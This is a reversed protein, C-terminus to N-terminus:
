LRCLCRVSLDGDNCVHVVQRVEPFPIATFDEVGYKVNYYTKTFEDCNLLVVPRGFANIAAGIQLENEFYFETELAGTKM